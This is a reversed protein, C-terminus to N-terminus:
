INSETEREYNALKIYYNYVELWFNERANTLTSQADLYELLNLQGAMYKKNVLKFTQEASKQQKGAADISKLSTILDLYAANVQLEIQKEIEETKVDISLGQIRAQSLKAKRQMGVFLDWKLAVSVMGYANRENFVYEDGQFGYDAALAMTPLYNSALLKQSYSNAHAYTELQKIESRREVNASRNEPLAPLVRGLLTDIEVESGLSKNLLFNFYQQSVSKSQEAQAIQQELMSLEAESRYVYDVTVKNNEYLSQNVRINEEILQMSEALLELWKHAKLFNMYATKIDAVLNRRYIIRDMGSITSLEKQIKSNYYISPNFIPQVLSLRTNHEFPRMFAIEENEIQPFSNSATLENLTSYVPNLLDGVPLDITRGGEAVTARANISLNPYFYSRAEQLASLSHEYNYDLQKLALNNKVGLEIYNTLITSQASITFAGLFFFILASISKM